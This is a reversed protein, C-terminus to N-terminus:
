RYAIFLDRWIGGTGQPHFEIHNFHGITSLANEVWERNITVDIKDKYIDESTYGMELVFVKRACDMLNKLCELGEEYGRQAMVWQVVAFASIVDYYKSHKAYDYLNEQIYLTGSKRFDSNFSCLKAFCSQVEVGVSTFGADAMGEVFYGTCCGVDLYSSGAPATETFNMAQKASALLLKLRAECDKRVYSFAPLDVGYIPSYTYREGPKPGSELLIKELHQIAESHNPTVISLDKCADRPFSPLLPLAAAVLVGRNAAEVISDFIGEGFHQAEDLAVVDGSHSNSLATVLGGDNIVDSIPFYLQRTRCGMLGGKKVNPRQSIHPHDPLYLFTSAGEKTAKRLLKILETTKGSGSPGIFFTLSM